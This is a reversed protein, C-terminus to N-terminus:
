ICTLKITPSFKIISWQDPSSKLVLQFIFPEFFKLRTYNGHVRACHLRYSCIILLEIPFSVSRSTHIVRRVTRHEQQIFKRSFHRSRNLRLLINESCDDVLCPSINKLRFKGRLTRKNHFVCFCHHTTGHIKFYTCRTRASLLWHRMIWQFGLSFCGDPAVSYNTKPYRQNPSYDTGM